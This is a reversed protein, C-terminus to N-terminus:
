GEGNPRRPGGEALDQRFFAELQAWLTAIQERRAAYRREGDELDLYVLGALRLAHLHHVVTPARLRLRRALQSPTHPRESLYRLIRLRTPDALARLGRLLADPVDEGPILSTGPPRAGFVLLGEEPGTRRFVVLPALWFSPALTLHPVTEAEPLRVGQTLHILLDHRSLQAAQVQATHLTEQLLPGLREEEEAFFAQHYERLAQVMAVGFPASQAWADLRQALAAKQPPKPLVSLAQQLRSLDADDWTARRAVREYIAQAEQPVDAAAFLRSLRQAPPLAELAALATAADKPAGLRAVWPLPLPFAKAFTELTRRAEESLRARVGAAWARRLGFDQPHHLVYLSAFFDYATGWDWRLATM